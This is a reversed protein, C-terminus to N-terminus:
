PKPLLSRIKRAVNQAAPPDLNALVVIFYGSQPNNELVGNIGPAGGAIGIGKQPEGVAIKGEKIAQTYKLLDRATSYGGGASSGRGPLTSYNSQLSGGERTYGVARNVVAADKEYSETDAMGAPKFINERVYSYYDMGSAKEIILGLLIYGGNSYQSKTGPEFELPKDAFLPLFARLSRLQEKSTKDYREGFIDGIGSTMSLLHQITVKEAAQANPYDPLYRKIPDDLSLKGVAALQRIALATFNKNISGLNFKSNEQNLIQKERDAYGYAKEFIPKAHQAILVVGSFEDKKVLESVFEQVKTVLESNDAASTGAITGEDDETEVGIGLLGFPPTQECRFELRLREGSQSAAALSVFDERSLLVRRLELRGGLQQFTQRYRAVREDISVGSASKAFHAEFFQRIESENGSNFAKFYAAAHKGAPTQPLETRQAQIVSLCLPFSVLFRLRM